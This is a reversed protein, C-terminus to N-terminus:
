IGETPTGFKRITRIMDNVHFIIMGTLGLFLALYFYSVSIELATTKQHYSIQMIFITGVWISILFVATLVDVVIKFSLKVRGTLRSVLM